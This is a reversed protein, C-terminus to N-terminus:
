KVVSTAGFIPEFSKRLAADVETMEAKVGLTALSTTGRGVIGCPKIGAFHALEPDVYLAFGYSTVWSTCRLGIAAIKDDGIWVGAPDFDARRGKVGFEALAAIIWDHLSAVFDTVDKRRARLDLMVVVVRVGPGTYTWDGARAKGPVVDIPVGMKIDVDAVKSASGPNFGAPTTLLWVAERGKGDVLGRVAVHMDAVMAGYPTLGPLVRWLTPRRDLRRLTATTM